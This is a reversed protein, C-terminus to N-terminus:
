VKACRSDLITRIQIGDCSPSLSRVHLSAEVKLIAMFCIWNDSTIM